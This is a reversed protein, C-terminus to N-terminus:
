ADRAMQAPIAEINATARALQELLKDIEHQLTEYPRLLHTLERQVEIRRSLRQLADEGAGASETRDDYTAHIATLDRALEDQIQELHARLVSIYLATASVENAIRQRYEEQPHM